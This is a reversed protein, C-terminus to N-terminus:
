GSLRMCKEEDIKVKVECADNHFFINATEMPCERVCRNCGVCLSYDTKIVDIM